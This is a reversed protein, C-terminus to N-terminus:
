EKKNKNQVIQAYLAIYGIILAAWMMDNLRSPTANHCDRWFMVSGLILWILQFISCLYIVITGFTVILTSEKAAGLMMILCMCGAVIGMSGSVTLWPIIPVLPTDCNEVSNKYFGAFALEVIPFSFILGLGCIGMCGYGCIAGCIGDYASKNSSSNVVSRNGREIDKTGDIGSFDAM